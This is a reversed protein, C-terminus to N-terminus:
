SAFPVFEHALGSLNLERAAEHASAALEPRANGSRRALRVLDLILRLRHVPGDAERAEAARQLLALAAHTDGRRSLLRAHLLILEPTVAALQEEVPHNAAIEAAQAFKGSELCLSGELSALADALYPPVPADRAELATGPDPPEHYAGDGAELSTADRGRAARLALLAAALDGRALALNGRALHVLARIEPCDMPAAVASAEELMGAAIGPSGTTTQWDALALLILAHSAIDDSRPAESRALAVTTRGQETALLGAAALADVHRQLALMMEGRLKAERAITVAQHARTLGTAPDGYGAVMAGAALIRCRALPDPFPDMGEMGALLRLVEDRDGARHVAVVTADLVAALLAHDGEGRALDELGALRDLTRGLSRRGMLHDSDAVILRMEALESESLDTEQALAEEGYRRAEDLRRARHHARALPVTVRDRRTGEGAEYAIKLLGLRDAPLCEAAPKAAELAYIYALERDGARLCHRAALDPRFGASGSRLAEAALGHLMSRRTPSLNRYVAHRVIGHRISVKDGTRAVLRLEQLPELADICEHRSRGSIRSLQKPTAPRGFVALSSLLKRADPELEAVRRAVIARVTDPVRVGGDPEESHGDAPAGAALEILFLPNGGALKVISDVAPEDLEEAGLSLVLKKASTDTLERLRIPTSGRDAELEAILRGALENRALDERRYCLLLTLGGRQWRRNLFQVVTVSEEDTSHFDDLFVLVPRSEAIATFLRLLAECTHRRLVEAHGARGNPESRAEVSDGFQPLLSLLHSRWPDALSRLIPGVWPQNLAELLTSLPIERELEGPCARLVRYGRLRAGQIAEEVLRTKGLGPEGSVTVTHWPVRSSDQFISRALHALESARGALPADLSVAEPIAPGRDPRRYLARVMRLLNRTRPDPSWEGSADAYEAFSQYMAEAERVMGGMAQARIVRRLITEDQPDLRFLAEASVRANPWDDSAAAADWTALARNRLRTRRGIEHTEIWDALADTKRKPFASLFGREVLDCAAEFNCSRILEDFDRLDTAVARKDVRVYEGELAIVRAECRHNTQYVLQSLRHRVVKGHGVGWLLRQVMSRPTRAQGSGFAISLLGAQFPSIRVSDGDRSLAPGGFFDLRLKKRHQRPFIASSESLSTM